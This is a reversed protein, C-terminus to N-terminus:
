SAEAERKMDALARYFEPGAHVEDLIDEIADLNALRSEHETPLNGDSAFLYDITMGPFFQRKIQEAEQITTPIRENVKLNFNSASMGLFDAIDAQSVRVRAMEAKLNCFAM